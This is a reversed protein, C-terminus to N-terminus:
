RVFKVGLMAFLRRGGNWFRLARGDGGNLGIVAPSKSGGSAEIRSTQNAFAVAASIRDQSALVVVHVGERIPQKATVVVFSRHTTPHHRDCSFRLEVREAVCGQRLGLREIRESPQRLTTFRGERVGVSM